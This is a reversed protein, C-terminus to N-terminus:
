PNILERIMQKSIIEPLVVPESSDPGYYAYVPVGARGYKKIWRDIEDDKNTYDGHLLAINNELFLQEIETTKLVTAENVRCTACWRASFAVFVSRHRGRLEELRVPSFEEWIQNTKEQHESARVYESSNQEFRLVIFASSAVIAAAIALTLAVRKRPSGPAAFSGLLWAAVTLILMFLLVRILGQGGIQYYLVDLLYVVTGLLLFGMGGKFINMWKGPKPIKQILGPWIGILIFPLSLGLGIMLFMTVIVLSPQSFAFGLAPGLLPATCPTALLVAFMGTFFSGTHGPKTSARAAVTMGPISIIFVDFLSLAFFFIIATLTIVFGKNQFQFGWGVSEGSIKLVVILLSLALMSVLIGLTYMLSGELITKRNQNSQQVLNLAKLSLVPLVCPMFNLIIGGLFALLLNLMLSWTILGKSKAVVDFPVSFEVQEPFYCVGEEDCLQYRATITLTYNGEKIDTSLLIEASLTAETYYNVLGDEIEGKPYNIESITIEPVQDITFNFYDKNLTQHFGNPFSYTVTVTASGDPTSQAPAVAVSVIDDSFSSSLGACLLFSCIFLITKTNRKQRYAM